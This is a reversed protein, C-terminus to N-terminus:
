PAGASAEAHLASYDASSMVTIADYAPKTLAQDGNGEGHVKYAGDKPFVIFYFQLDAPSDPGTVFVLTKGDSCGYVYWQVDDFYRGVPGLSCDHSPRSDPASATQSSASAIPALALALGILM